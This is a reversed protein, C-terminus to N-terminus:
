AARLENAEMKLVRELNLVALLRNELQVVGRLFEGGTIEQGAPVPELQHDEVEVVDGVGDVVFGVTDACTLLDQRQWMSRLAALEDNTKLIVQHPQVCEEARMKLRVNLDVITAVHGRLNILGRVYPPCHPVPTVSMLRNIERVLLVEVGLLNKGLHFTAYQKM